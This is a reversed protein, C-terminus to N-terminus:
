SHQSTHTSHLPDARYPALDTPGTGDLLNCPPSVRPFLPLLTDFLLRPHRRPRPLGRPGRLRDTAAGIKLEISMHGEVSDSLSVKSEGFAKKIREKDEKREDEKRAKWGDAGTELMSKKRRREEEEEKEAEGGLGWWEPHTADVLFKASQRLQEPRYFRSPFPLEAAILPRM